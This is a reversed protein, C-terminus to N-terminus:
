AKFFMSLIRLVCTKVFFTSKGVNKITCFITQSLKIFIYRKLCIITIVNSFFSNYDLIKGYSTTINSM